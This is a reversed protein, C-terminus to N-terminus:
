ILTKGTNFANWNDEFTGDPVEENLANKWSEESLNLYKSVSGLLAVNFFKPKGIKENFQKTDITIVNDFKSKLESEIGEPYEKVESPLIRTNTFFIKTDKNCYELWRLTEMEEFSILIDVEGKPIVPSFVKKGYRIHSFVSGGRQSMGHIESKKSDYGDLMAARSLIDSSLIIGQGGVGVILVNKNREM